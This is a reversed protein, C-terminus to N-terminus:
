AALRESLEAHVMQHFISQTLRDRKLKAPPTGTQTFTKCSPELRLTGCRSQEMEASLCFGVDARRSRRRLWATDTAVSPACYPELILTGCSSPITVVPRFFVNAMGLFCPRVSTGVM